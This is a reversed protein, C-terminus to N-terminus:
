SKFLGDPKVFSKDNSENKENFHLTLESVIMNHGMLLKKGSKGRTM